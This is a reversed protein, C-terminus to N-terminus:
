SAVTRDDEEILQQHELKGLYVGTAVLTAAVPLTCIPALVKAKSTGGYVVFPSIVIGSGVTLGILGCRLLSKQSSGVTRQPPRVKFQQGESLGAPVMVVGRSGDDFNVGMRDGPRGGAPVVAVLSVEEAAGEPPRHTPRPASLRTAAVVMGLGGILLSSVGGAIRLREFAAMLGACSSGCISM